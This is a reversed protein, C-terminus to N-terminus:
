KLFYIAPRLVLTEYDRGFLTFSEGEHGAGSEAGDIRRSDDTRTQLDEDLRDM